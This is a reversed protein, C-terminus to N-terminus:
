IFSTESNHTQYPLDIYSFYDKVALHHVDKFHKDCKRCYWKGRRYYLPLFNCDPCYAGTLLESKAIKYQLLIDAIELPTNSKLLAKSIKKIDNDTIIEKEYCDDLDDIEWTVGALSCINKAFPHNTPSIYFYSNPNCSVILFEIPLPPLKHQILWESLLQKLLRAQSVPDPFVKTSGDDNRRYFQHKQLDFYLTGAINKAEIIIAFKKSLILTDIQFYTDLHPLRLDSFIYYKKQNLKKLKKDVEKEGWLGAKRRNLEQEILGRVTHDLPLRRKIVELLIIKMPTLREKVHVIVIV